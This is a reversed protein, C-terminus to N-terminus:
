RWRTRRGADPGARFCPRLNLALATTPDSVNRVFRKWGYNHAEKWGLASPLPHAWLSGEEIPMGARAAGHNISNRVATLSHVTTADRACSIDLENAYARVVSLPVRSKGHSGNKSIEWRRVLQQTLNHVPLPPERHVVWAQLWFEEPFNTARSLQELTLHTEVYRLFNLVVPIPYFSGEHYSWVQDASSMVRLTPLSGTLNLYVKATIHDGEDDDTVNLPYRTSNHTHGTGSTIIVGRIHRCQNAMAKLPGSMWHARQWGQNDVSCRLKNVRSELDPRLWLTNSSQLVLHGCAVVPWMRVAFRTNSLHAFLVLGTGVATPLRVSNLFARSQTGNLKALETDSCSLAHSSLHIVIRTTSWTFALANRVLGHLWACPEDGVALSVVAPCDAM